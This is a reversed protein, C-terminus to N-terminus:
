HNVLKMAGEGYREGTNPYRAVLEDIAILDANSLTVDVAGANDELYNRKKTGPIPIIDDGQALVWALALQAPTVGKDAALEAFAAALSRNNEWNDGSYRPLTRRFDDDALQTADLTNTVLGRALPSYPVLTIGLERVTDLIEGEINRTMLSYESQLAAIPHVAHAKRISAASAESLGLYRVKGEKVLEAMAGVMDEVPVKPDIRHAYYLDITDIKLRQLSKEVATKVWAPSGDFYTGPASSPGAVGDRFRFGFKTAIFVKDRNPVLVRSVLEENQGNAYMDATDWFNIGLDLAKHLTAISETEDTPGYAFSMGMCGLGIASLKEGTNSLNRYNM